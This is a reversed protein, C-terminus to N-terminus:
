SLQQLTVVFSFLHCSGCHTANATTSNIVPKKKRLYLQLVQVLHVTIGNNKVLARLVSRQYEYLILFKSNVKGTFQSSILYYNCTSTTNETFIFNIVVM